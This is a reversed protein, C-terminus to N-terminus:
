ATIGLRDRVIADVTRHYLAARTADIEEALEWQRLTNRHRGLRDAVDQRTVGYLERYARLTPGPLRAANAIAM